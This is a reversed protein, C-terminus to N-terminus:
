MHPYALANHPHFARKCHAQQRVHGCARLCASPANFREGAHPVFSCVKSYRESIYAYIPKALELRACGKLSLSLMTRVYLLHVLSLARLRLSCADALYHVLPYM